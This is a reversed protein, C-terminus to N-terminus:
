EMFALFISLWRPEMSWCCSWLVVNFARSLGILTLAGHWTRATQRKLRQSYAFICCQVDFPASHLRRHTGLGRFCSSFLFNQPILSDVLDHVRPLLCYLLIIPREAGVWTNRLGQFTNVAFASQVRGKHVGNIRGLQCVKSQVVLSTERIHLDVTEVM